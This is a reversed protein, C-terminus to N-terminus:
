LQILHNINTALYIIRYNTGSSNGTANSELFVADSFGLLSSCVKKEVKEATVSGLSLPPSFTLYLNLM